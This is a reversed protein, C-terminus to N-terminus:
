FWPSCQRSLIPTPGVRLVSTGHRPLVTLFSISEVTLPINELVRSPCVRPGGPSRIDEPTSPVPERPSVLPRSEPDRGPLGPSSPPGPVLRPSTRLELSSGFLTQTRSPCSVPHPSSRRPLKSPALTVSSDQPRLPSRRQLDVSALRWRKVSSRNLGVSWQFNGQARSRTSTRSQPDYGLM